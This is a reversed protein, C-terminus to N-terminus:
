SSGWNLSQQIEDFNTPVVYVEADYDMDLAYHNVGVVKYGPSNNLELTIHEGVSPVRTLECDERGTWGAGEGEKINVRVKVKM